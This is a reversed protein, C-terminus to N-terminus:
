KLDFNKKNWIDVESVPRWKSRWDPDFASMYQSDWLWTVHSNMKNSNTQEYLEDDSVIVEISESNANFRISSIKESM